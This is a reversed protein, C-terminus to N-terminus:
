RNIGVFPNFNKEDGITTTPGHGSYVVTEDPLVFLKATISQVLTSHNGGPFDTRGISQNFLADGSILIKEDGLYFSLSGPSHGPTHIIKIAIDGLKLDSNEDIFYDPSPPNEGPLGYRVSVEPFSNLMPLDLQHIVFPIHFQQKLFAIGFVHDLHAHTNLLLMPQLNNTSIYNLLKQQEEKFYCGADVIICQKQENYILYTNEQLPNFTFAKIKLM